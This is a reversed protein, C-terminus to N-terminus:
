KKSLYFTFCLYRGTKQSELLPKATSRIPRSIIREGENILSFSEGAVRVTGTAWTGRLARTGKLSIVETNPENFDIAIATNKIEIRRRKRPSTDRSKFLGSVNMTGKRVDKSRKPWRWSISYAFCLPKYHASHSCLNLIQSFKFMLAFISWDCSLRSVIFYFTFLVVILIFWTCYFIFM